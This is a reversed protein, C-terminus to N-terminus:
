FLFPASSRLGLISHEIAGRPPPLRGRPSSLRVLEARLSTAPEGLVIATLVLELLIRNFEASAERAREPSSEVVAASIHWGAVVPSFPAEFVGNGTWSRHLFAVRGEVFVDWKEDMDRARYGREIREWQGQSWVRASLETMPAPASVPFLKGALGQDGGPIRERASVVCRCTRRYWHHVRPFASL